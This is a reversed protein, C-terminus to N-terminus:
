TLRPRGWRGPWFGGSYKIITLIIVVHKSIIITVCMIYVMPDDTKLIFAYFHNFVNRQRYANYLCNYLTYM